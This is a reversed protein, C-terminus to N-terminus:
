QGNLWIPVLEGRPVLDPAAEALYNLIEIRLDDAGKPSSAFEHLMQHLEDSPVIKAVNLVLKRCARDGRDLM